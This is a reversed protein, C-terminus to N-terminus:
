PLGQRVSPASSFRSLIQKLSRLDGVECDPAHARSPPEFHRYLGGPTRVRVTGMGVLRPGLFDKKPNDGVYIAARGAVGLRDLIIQFPLPSPKNAGDGCADTFVVEHLHSGLGLASLKRQQAPFYGDTVLGLLYYGRLDELLEVAGEYPDIDPEHERYTRVLQQALDEGVCGLQALWVDFTNGRVGREFLDNLEALAQDAAIQLNAEAWAAAARFGSLVFSREPYLTDDLDFIIARLLDNRKV